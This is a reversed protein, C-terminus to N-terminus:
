NFFNVILELNEKNFSPNTLPDGGSKLYDNYLDDYENKSYFRSDIDSFIFNTDFKSITNPIIQDGYNPGIHGVLETGSISEIFKKFKKIKM